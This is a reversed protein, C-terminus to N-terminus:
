YFALGMDIAMASLLILVLRTHKTAMMTTIAVTITGQSAPQQMVYFFGTKSDTINKLANKEMRVRVPKHNELFIFTTM